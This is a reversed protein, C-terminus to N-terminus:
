AIKRQEAEEFSVGFEKAIAKTIEAGGIKINRVFAKNDEVYVLNTTRAGVDILLTSM